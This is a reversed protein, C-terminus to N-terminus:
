LCARTDLISIGLMYYLSPTLFWSILLQSEQPSANGALCTLTPKSAGHVLMWSHNYSASVPSINAMCIHSCFYYRHHYYFLRLFASMWLGAFFWSSLIM